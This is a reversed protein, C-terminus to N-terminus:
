INFFKTTDNYVSVMLILGNRLMIFHPSTTQHLSSSIVSAKLEKIDM